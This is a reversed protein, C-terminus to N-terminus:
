SSTFLKNSIDEQKDDPIKYSNYKPKEFPKEFPKFVNKSEKSKTETPKALKEAQEYDMFEKVKKTGTSKGTLGPSITSTENSEKQSRKSKEGSM